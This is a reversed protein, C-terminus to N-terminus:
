VDNNCKPKFIFLVHYVMSMFAKNKELLGIWNIEICHNDGGRLLGGVGRGVQYHNKRIGVKRRLIVCFKRENRKQICIKKIFGGV